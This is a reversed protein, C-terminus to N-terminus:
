AAIGTIDPDDSTFYVLPCRDGLEAQTVIEANAGTLDTLWLEGPPLTPGTFRDLLNQGLVCKIGAALINGDQDSIDFYQAQERDSWYFRFLYEVGELQTIQDYETATTDNDIVYIM